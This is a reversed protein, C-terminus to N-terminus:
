TASWSQPAGTGAAERGDLIAITVDARDVVAKGAAVYSDERTPLSSLAVVWSAAALLCGFEPVSAASGFDTVYEAAPMPLIVELRGGPRAMVAEAVLRDAGEAMAFVAVLRCEARVLAPLIDLIQDLGDEIAKRVAQEDALRRHGTVAV